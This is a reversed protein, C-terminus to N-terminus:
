VPPIPNNFSGNGKRYKSPCLGVYRRFMRAFHSLDNFGVAFAIDTVSARPNRL